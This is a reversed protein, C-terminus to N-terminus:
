KLEYLKIQRIQVPGFLGSPLPSDTKRWHHWTTFTFRGTPSPKGELLWQPWEKLRMGEWERDDPLQEDGILRNPWYNTIKVKLSNDGARVIDTIDIRYPPKWLVPFSKGNVEVEAFNKLEGLDLILRTAADPKTPWAFSKDYTATGSFYKVGDNAHRTWSILKDLTVEAPAGWNPPFSLKWSGGIEVPEPIDEANINITKGSSTTLEFSSPEWVRLKVLEMEYAPVPLSSSEGVRIKASKLEYTPVPITADDVPLKLTRGDNVNIIGREGDISYEVRAEKKQKPAIDRGDALDKSISVELTGDHVLAQLRAKVDITQPKRDPESSIVGYLAKVVKAGAPLTITKNENAIARKAEGNVEYNILLEKITGFAPDGGLEGNSAKVVLNDNALQKLVHSTVVKCNNAEAFDGYLASLIKLESAPKKNRSPGIATRKISTVHELSSPNRFVVFVSGSPDFSIPVRTLGDSESYLAAPTISGTEPNWFEPTKGSIRFSCDAEDGSLSPCAVFYVDMGSLKRHIYKLDTNAEARFDPKLNLSLLVDAIPKDSVIKSWIKDALKVVEADCAPYGKLGPSQQPKKGGVITAGAEVLRLIVKLTAPTFAGADPLVLLSYTMGSPLTLNGDVVKLMSLAHADCADYDYGEPLKVTSEGDPTSSYFLADSAGDNPANEGSFYLVDAFFRGEQLLYQCRAQYRLWAKGQEWWTLTREFHTGWQGMTM